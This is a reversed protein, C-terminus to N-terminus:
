HGRCAVTSQLNIEADEGPASNKKKSKMTITVRARAPYEEIIIYFSGTIEVNDPSVVQGNRLLRKNASDFIYDFTEMRPNTIDLVPVGSSTGTNITSMRIEKAMSELLYRSSEHASQLAIAKKQSKLVISFIGTIVVVLIGFVAMAVLLEILTFGKNKKFGENM